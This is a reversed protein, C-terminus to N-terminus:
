MNDTVKLCIGSNCTTTHTIHGIRKIWMDILWFSNIMIFIRILIKCAYSYYLFKKYHPSVYRLAEVSLRVTMTVEEGNTACSESSALVWFGNGSTEAQNQLRGVLRLCRSQKGEVTGPRKLVAIYTNYTDPLSDVQKCIDTTRITPQQPQETTTEVQGAITAESDYEVSTIESNSCAQPIVFFM